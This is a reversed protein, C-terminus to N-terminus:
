RQDPLKHYPIKGENYVHMSKVTDLPTSILASIAGVFLGNFFPPLNLMNNSKINEYLGLKFGIDIVDELVIPLYSTYLGGLGRSKVLGIFAHGFSKYKQM